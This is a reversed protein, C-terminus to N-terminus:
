RDQRIDANRGSAILDLTKSDEGFIRRYIWYGAVVKEVYDRTEQAPLMEILLLPDSEGGAATAGKMVAGPGGNYAAVARLIDGQPTINDLLHKFYDQGVRLNTSPEALLSADSKLRDDGTVYAATTPMVQMLGRAGAHSVADRRFGSEQRVIAYVMAKDLTFGGRPALRPTPFDAPNVGRVKRTDADGDVPANLNLALTTWQRREEPTKAELLGLRLEAGADNALGLQSLAVARKARLSTKMLRHLTLGDFGGVRQFGSAAEAIERFSPDDNNDEATIDSKLGLQREALLGYFTYPTKAAMQLFGPAMEPAGAAIASRSAWYAAGSRMWAGENEDRAVIEFRRLADVYDGLRFAALGAVWREGTAAALERAKLVDGGYFAERAERSEPTPVYRKGTFSPGVHLSRAATEIKRWLQSGLGGLPAKPPLADAPKRKQALSYVRDAGPHDGYKDLWASLEDYSAKPGNPSMLRLFEVHGALSKDSVEAIKEAAADHEGKRAADFAASYLQADWPTLAQVAM